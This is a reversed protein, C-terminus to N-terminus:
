QGGAILCAQLSRDDHRTGLVELMHFLVARAFDPAADKAANVSVFAQPHEMDLYTLNFTTGDDNHYIAMEKGAFLALSSGSDKDHWQFQVRRLPHVDSEFTLVPKIGRYNSM